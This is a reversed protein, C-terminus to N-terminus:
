NNARFDCPLSAIADGPKSLTVGWLQRAQEETNGYNKIQLMLGWPCNSGPVSKNRQLVFSTDAWWKGYGAVANAFTYALFLRNEPHDNLAPESFVVDVYSGLRVVPGGPM